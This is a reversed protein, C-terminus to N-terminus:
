YPLDDTPRGSSRERRDDDRRRGRDRDRDDRRRDGGRGRREDRDDRARGRSDDDRDDRSRWDDRADDRHDGRAGGGCLKLDDAHIETKYRKIGEKDEYSSTRLRGEVFVRSGRLLYKELAEARKGWVVVSHWETRENREGDRDVWSETTAMRFNLVAQGGQTFRLESDEGLNGLLFVKNMGDSM